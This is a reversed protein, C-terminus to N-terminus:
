LYNFRIDIENKIEFTFLYIISKCGMLFAIVLPNVCFFRLSSIILLKRKPHTLM